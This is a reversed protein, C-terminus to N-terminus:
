KNSFGTHIKEEDPEYLKKMEEVPLLLKESKSGHKNFTTKKIM